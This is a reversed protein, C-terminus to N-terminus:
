GLILSFKIETNYSKSATKQKYISNERETKLKFLSLSCLVYATFFM